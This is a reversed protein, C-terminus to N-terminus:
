YIKYFYNSNIYNNFGFIRYKINIEIYYNQFM